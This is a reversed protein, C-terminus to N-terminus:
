RQVLLRCVLVRGVGGVLGESYYQVEIVVIRRKVMWRRGEWVRGLWVVQWSGGGVVFWSKVM